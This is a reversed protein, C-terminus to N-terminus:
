DSNVLSSNSKQTNAAKAVETKAEKTTAASNEINMDSKRQFPVCM